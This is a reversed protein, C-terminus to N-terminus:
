RGEMLEKIVLISELNDERAFYVVDDIEVEYIFIDEGDYDKRFKKPVGGNAGTHLKFAWRHKISFDILEMFIEKYKIDEM